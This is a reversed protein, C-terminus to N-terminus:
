AEDDDSQAGGVGTYSLPCYGQLPCYTCSKGDRPEAPFHGERISADISIINSLVLAKIDDWRFAKSKKEDSVSDEDMSFHLVHKSQKRNELFLYMMESTAQQKQQNWALAYVPLQMDDGSVVSDRTFAHGSGSKYDVLRVGRSTLDVRDVIGSVFISGYQGTIRLAEARLPKHWCLLVGDASYQAHPCQELRSCVVEGTSGGFEWECAINQLAGQEQEYNLWRLLIRRAREVDISWLEPVMQVNGPKQWQQDVLQNLHAVWEDRPLQLLSPEYTCRPALLEQVMRHYLIGRDAPQLVDSMVRLPQMGVLKEVLFRYPCDRYLKLSSASYEFRALRQGVAARMHSDDSALAWSMNSRGLAFAQVSQLTESPVLSPVDSESINGQLLAVRLHPLTHVWPHTDRSVHVTDLADGMDIAIQHLYGSIALTAGRENCRSSSFVIRRRASGLIAAFRHRQQEAGEQHGTMGLNQLAREDLLWDTSIGSPFRDSHCCPVVVIDFSRGVLREAPLVAVGGERGIPLSVYSEHLLLRMAEIVTSMDGYHTPLIRAAADIVRVIEQWVAEVRRREHLSEELRLNRPIARLPWGFEGQLMARLRDLLPQTYSQEELAMLRAEWDQLLAYGEQYYATDEALMSSVDNDSNLLNLGHSLREWRLLWRDLPARSGSIGWKSAVRMSLEEKGERQLLPERLLRPLFLDNKSQVAELLQMLAKGMPEDDLRISQVMDYPVLQKNLEERLYQQYRADQPAVIVCAESPTGSLLEQKILGVLYRCESRADSAQVHLMSGAPMSRGSPVGHLILQQVSAFMGRSQYPRLMEASSFPTFDDDVRPWTTDTAGLEMPDLDSQACLEWLQKMPSDNPSFGYWSLGTVQQNEFAFARELVKAPTEQQMRALIARLRDESDYSDHEELWAQYTQFTEIWAAVVGPYQVQEALRLELEKSSIDKSKVEAILQGLRVSLTPRRLFSPWRQQQSAVIHQLLLQRDRAGLLTQGKFLAEEQQIKGMFTALSFCQHLSVQEGRQIMRKQQLQVAMRTDAAVTIHLEPLTRTPM